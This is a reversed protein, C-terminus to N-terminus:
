PSADASAGSAAADGCRDQRSLHQSAPEAPAERNPESSRVSGAKQGERLGAYKPDNGPANPAACICVVEFECSSLRPKNAPAEFEAAWGTEGSPARLWPRVIPAPHTSLSVDPEPLARPTRSGRAVRSDCRIDRDPRRGRWGRRTEPFPKCGFVGASRARSSAAPRTRARGAPEVGSIQEGEQHPSSDVIL